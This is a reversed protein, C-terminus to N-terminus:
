RLVRARGEPPQPERLTHRPQDVRGLAVQRAAGRVRLGPPRRPAPEAAPVTHRHQM